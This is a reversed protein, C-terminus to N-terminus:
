VCVPLERPLRVASVTPPDTASFAGRNARGGTRSGASHGLTHGLTLLDLNRRFRLQVKRELLRYLDAIEGFPIARWLVLALKHPM